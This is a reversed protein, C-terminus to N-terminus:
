ESQNTPIHYSLGLTIVATNLYRYDQLAVYGIYHSVLDYYYLANLSLDFLNNLSYSLVAGGVLGANLRRDSSSFDKPTDFENFFVEYDTM